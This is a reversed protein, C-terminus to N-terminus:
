WEVQSGIDFADCLIEYPNGDADLFEQVARNATQTFQILTSLAAAQKPNLVGHMTSGSDGNEALVEAMLECANRVDAKM